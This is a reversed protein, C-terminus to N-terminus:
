KLGWKELVSKAPERVAQVTLTLINDVSLSDPKITPLTMCKDTAYFKLAEALERVAQILNKIDPYDIKSLQWKREIEDLNM